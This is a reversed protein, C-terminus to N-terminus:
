YHPSVGEQNDNYDTDNLITIPIASALPPADRVTAGVAVKYHFGPKQWPDAYTNVTQRHNPFNVYGSGSVDLVFIVPAGWPALVQDGSTLIPDIPAGGDTYWKLDHASDRIYEAFGDVTVVDAEGTRHFREPYLQYYHMLQPLLTMAASNFDSVLRAKNSAKQFREYQYAFCVIISICLVVISVEYFMHVISSKSEVTGPTRCCKLPVCLYALGGGVVTGAVGSGIMEGAQSWGGIGFVFGFLFTCVAGVISYLIIITILGARNVSPLVLLLIGLSLIPNLFFVVIFEYGMLECNFMQVSLANCFYPFYM